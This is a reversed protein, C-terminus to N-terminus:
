EWVTAHDILKMFGKALSDYLSGSGASTVEFGFSESPPALYARTEVQIRGFERQHDILIASGFPITNHVLIRLRHRNEEALRKRLELLENLSLLIRDGLESPSIGFVPSIAYLVNPNRPNLLSITARFSATCNAPTAEISKQIHRKVGEITRKSMSLSVIVLSDVAKEIYSFKTAGSTVLSQYNPRRSTFSCIGLTSLVDSIDMNITVSQNAGTIQVQNQKQRYNNIWMRLETKARSLNTLDIHTAGSLDTPLKPNGMRVMIAAEMGLIGIFLGHEFAVNDRAQGYSDSRYWVLDDESFILIAADVENNAIELLRPVTFSGPHFLGPTNWPVPQCGNDELITCVTELAERSERSSGVFVRM